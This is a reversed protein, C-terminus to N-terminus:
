PLDTMPLRAETLVYARGVHEAIGQEMMRRLQQTAAGESIHLLEGLLKPGVPGGYRKMAARADERQATIRGDAAVEGTVKWRHQTFSMALKMDDVDRGGVELSGNMALRGRRLILSGDASGTLGYTGSVAALPDESDAKRIHHVILIALQYKTALSQIGKVANYDEAYINRGTQLPRWRQLTDIIVLRATPRSKLWQELRALGGADATEWETEYEFTAPCPDGNLLYELREQFRRDGDELSLYLVEGQAATYDGLITSGRAVALALDMVLWSKGIKPAGALITAGEPIIPEVTWRMKGLDRGMLDAVSKAVREPAESDPERLTHSVKHGLVPQPANYTDSLGELAKSLTVSRYDDRNWKDRMLGSGRFLWDLVHEDQTYFALKSLLALDAESQSSYGTTDGSLLRTIGARNSARAAAELVQYGNLGPANLNGRASESERTRGPFLETYWVDLETQRDEITDATGALHNGTVTFYRDQDYLEINGVRRRTGPLKAKIWIRLGEGSPTVETYSNFRRVIAFASVSPLGEEDVCHDLDIGCYPDNISVVFGMQKGNKKYSKAANAFTTWTSADTSSANGGHVIDLPVKTPKGGREQWEWAVWQARAKLEELAPSKM